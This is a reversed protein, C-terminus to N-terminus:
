WKWILLAILTATLLFSFISGLIFMTMFSKTSFVQINEFDITKIANELEERSKLNSASGPSDSIFHQAYPFCLIQSPQDEFLGPYWTNTELHLSDAPIKLGKEVELPEFKLSFIDADNRSLIKGYGISLNGELWLRQDIPTMKGNEINADFKIQRIKDDREIDVFLHGRHNITVVAKSSNPGRLGNQKDYSITNTDYDVIIWSLLGSKKDEAIIYFECRVGWFASTHARFNGFIGYYKPEDDAFIRTKVLEFGDPLLSKAKEVDTIEYCLFTCYPEVVFGMFPIKKSSSTVLAKQITKPLLRNFGQIFHLSGVTIPNVLKEVNKAFDKQM